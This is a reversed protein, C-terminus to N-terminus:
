LFFLAKTKKVGEFEIETKRFKFSDFHFSATTAISDRSVLLNM